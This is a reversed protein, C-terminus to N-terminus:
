KNRIMKRIAARIQEGAFVDLLYLVLLLGIVAFGSLSFQLFSFDNGKKGMHHAPIMLDIMLPLGIIMIFLVMVGKGTPKIKRLFDQFASMGLNLSKPTPM